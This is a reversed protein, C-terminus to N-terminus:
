SKQGLKLQEIEAKLEVIAQFALACLKEYDVALMGNERTRVAEPLATQVDQAIVGFDQKRVFYDDTGGRQQIYEDNWDFLKGGIALVKETANPISRINEKYRRDSSYYATIDNTARIEGTTASALTGIGLSAFQVGNATSISQPLSLLINGQSVNGTIQYATGTVSVVGFALNVSSGLTISSGNITIASNDLAANPINTLLAGSGQFSSFTAKTGSMNAAIINGGAHINGGVGLGGVGAVVLAGTTPSTALTEVAAVLNGFVTTTSGLVTQNTVNLRGGVRANGGAVFTNTIAANGPAINGTYSPLYADVNANTYGAPLGTLLSGNGIVFSSYVNGTINLNSTTVINGTVSLTDLTGVETIYPQISTRLTGYLDNAAVFNTASVNGAVSLSTLGGSVYDRIASAEIKQTVNANEVPIQTTSVVSTTLPLQGIEISAM